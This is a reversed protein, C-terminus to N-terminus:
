YDIIGDRIESETTEMKSDTNVSQMEGLQM